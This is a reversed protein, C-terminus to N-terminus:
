QYIETAPALAQDIPFVEEFDVKIDFLEELITPLLIFLFFECLLLTNMKDNSERTIFIFGEQLTHDTIIGVAFTSLFVNLNAALHLFPLLAIILVGWMSHHVHYGGKARGM